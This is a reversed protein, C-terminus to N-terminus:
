PTIIRYFREQGVVIDSYPSTAGAVIIWPGIINDAIELTGNGGWSIAYSNGQREINIVTAPYVVVTVPNSTAVAGANDTTKATLVYTGTLANNWTFVYPSSTVTGLLTTGQFFDVKSISGDSDAAIASITITAPTTFTAQDLPATISVAPAANLPPIVTITTGSSTTVTGSNDTAVATLTYTGEPVNFWIFDYPSSTVTGLLTKGQFFDVKSISGDKDAANASIAINAIATFTANDAPSTLNVTPPCNPAVVATTKLVSVMIPRSVVNTGSRTAIASFMYLGSSANTITYTPIGGTFNALNTAFSYLALNTWGAFSADNVTITINSGPDVETENAPSSLFINTNHSAFARYVYAFNADPVWYATPKNGSYASYNTTTAFVTRITNSDILWGSSEALRTLTIPGNLTCQDAPYSLLVMEHLFAMGVGYVAISDTHTSGQMVAYSGLLGSPRNTAIFSEMANAVGSVDNDAAWMLVPIQLVQSPAVIPPRGVSGSGSVWAIVKNSNTKSVFYEPAGGASQGLMVLPADNIEPHGSQTAFSVISNTFVKLAESAGPYIALNASGVFAFQHFRLFEQFYPRLYEARTDGSSANFNVLIGRVYPYDDPWAIRFHRTTTNNTNALTEQYDYTIWSYSWGSVPLLLTLLSLFRKM